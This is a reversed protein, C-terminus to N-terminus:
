GGLIDSIDMQGYLQDDGAAKNAKVVEPEYGDPYCNIELDHDLSSLSRIGRPVIDCIQLAAVEKPMKRPARDIVKLKIGIGNQVEVEKVGISELPVCGLHHTRPDKDKDVFNEAPFIEADEMIRWGYVWKGHGTERVVVDLRKLFPFLPVLEGVTM